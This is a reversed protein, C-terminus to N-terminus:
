EDHDCREAGSIVSVVSELFSKEDMDYSLLWEASKALQCLVEARDRIDTLAVITDSGFGHESCLHENLDEVLRAIAAYSYNLAGGSM